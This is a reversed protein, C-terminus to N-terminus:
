QIKGSKRLDGCRVRVHGTTSNMDPELKDILTSDNASQARAYDRKCEDVIFKEEGTSILSSRQSWVLGLLLLLVVVISGIIRLRHERDFWALRRRRATLDQPSPM